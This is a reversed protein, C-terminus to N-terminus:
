TNETSHKIAEEAAEKETITVNLQNLNLKWWELFHEVSCWSLVARVEFPPFGHLTCEMQVLGEGYTKGEKIDKRCTLCKNPIVILM